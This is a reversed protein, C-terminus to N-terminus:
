CGYALWFMEVSQSTELVFTFLCPLFVCRFSEAVGMLKESFAVAQRITWKLSQIRMSFDHSESLESQM